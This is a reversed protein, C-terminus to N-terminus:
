RCRLRALGAHRRDRRQAARGAQPVGRRPLQGPRARARPRQRRPDRGRRGQRVDGRRRGRRDAAAVGEEGALASCRATTSSWRAASGRAWRSTACARRAARRRRHDAHGVDEGALARELVRTEAGGAILVATGEATALRAAELKSAMGGTGGASGGDARALTADDVGALERIRAARRSRHAPQRHLPRRRQDAAGASRRGPQGRGAGVARRQRRLRRAGREAAGRRVEDTSSWSRVSVSDNENLVPVVGLELLRMLTTRLCLARDRDALDEQTLLVQAAVVGFQAFADRTSAWSTARGSRRAPRGCAWRARGIRSGWCACGWASRAARCWCWRAGRRHAAAGPERRDGHDARAGARRRRAHRRPHGAQRRHPACRGPAQPSRLPPCRATLDVTRRPRVGGTALLAQAITRATM